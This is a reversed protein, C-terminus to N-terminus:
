RIGSSPAITDVAANIADDQCSECPEVDVSPTRRNYIGTEVVNSKLHAGCKECYAEVEVEVEISFSPSM